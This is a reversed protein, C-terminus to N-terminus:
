RAALRASYSIMVILPPSFTCKRPQSTHLSSSPKHLISPVFPKVCSFGHDRKELLNQIFAPIIFNFLGDGITVFFLNIKKQRASKSPHKSDARKITQCKTIDATLNKFFTHTNPKTIVNYNNESIQKEDCAGPSAAEQLSNDGFSVDVSSRLLACKFTSDCAHPISARPSTM